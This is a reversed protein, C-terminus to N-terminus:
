NDNRTGGKAYTGGLSEYLRRCAYSAAQAIGLEGDHLIHGHGRRLPKKMEGVSEFLTVIVVNQAIDIRVEMSYEKAPPAPKLDDAIFTGYCGDNEFCIEYINCKHKTSFMIDAIIGAEDNPTVLVRDGIKFKAEM